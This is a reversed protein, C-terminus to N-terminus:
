WLRRYVARLAVTSGAMVLASGAFLAVRQEYTMQELLPYPYFKNHKYCEELWFFYAVAIGSPISFAQAYGEAWPPSLLLIDILLFVAPALHFGIDVMTDLEFGPPVVLAKDIEMPASVVALTNKWAFFRSSLFVDSILGFVFTATALGLGIITLFQFHWGYSESIENPFLALFQFSFYFSTLGAIHVLASFGRSPANLRQLPHRSSVSM